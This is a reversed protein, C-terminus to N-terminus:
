IEQQLTEVEEAKLKKWFSHHKQEVDKLKEMPINTHILQVLCGNAWFEVPQMIYKVSSFFGAPWDQLRWKLEVFANVQFESVFGTVSKDMLSFDSKLSPSITCRSKTLKSLKEGNLLMGW